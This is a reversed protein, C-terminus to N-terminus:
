QIIEEHKIKASKTSLIDLKDVAEKCKRYDGPTLASKLTPLCFRSLFREKSVGLGSTSAIALKIQKTDVKYEKDVCWYIYASILGDIIETDGETIKEKKIDSYARQISGFDDIAALYDWFDLYEKELWNYYWIRKM